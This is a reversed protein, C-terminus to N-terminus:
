FLVMSWAIFSLVHKKLFCANSINEVGILRFATIKLKIIGCLCLDFDPM